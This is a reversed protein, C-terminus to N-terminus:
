PDSRSHRQFLGETLNKGWAITNWLLPNIPLWGTFFFFGFFCCICKKKPTNAVHNRIQRIQNVNAYVQLLGHSGGPTGKFGIYDAGILWDHPIHLNHLVLDFNDGVLLSCRIEDCVHKARVPAERTVSSFLSRGWGLVFNGSCNRWSQRIM